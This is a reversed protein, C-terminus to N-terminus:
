YKKLEKNLKIFFKTGPTIATKDWTLTDEMIGSEIFIEKELISKYRRNRQQEMKAVPAVGDIAILVYKQPKVINIYIDIQKCVNSILEAEFDTKNTYNEIKRLSDYIISNSDLYLNDINKKLRNIKKIITKHNKVIHSFYSPIGM